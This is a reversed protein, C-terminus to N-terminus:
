TRSIPINFRRCIDAIRNRTAASEDARGQSKLWDSYRRLTLILEPHEGGFVSERNGLAKTFFEEARAGEGQRALVAAMTIYSRGVKEPNGIKERLQLAEQCLRYAEDTNGLGLQLEAINNLITAYFFDQRESLSQECALAQELLPQTEL